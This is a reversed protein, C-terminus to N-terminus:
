AYDVESYVLEDDITEVTQCSSVIFNDLGSDATFGVFEYGLSKLEDLDILISLYIRGLYEDQTYFKVFDDKLKLAVSTDTIKVINFNNLTTDIITRGIFYSDDTYDGTENYNPSGAVCKFLSESAKTANGEHKNVNIVYYSKTLEIISDAEDLNVMEGFEGVQDGPEFYNFWNGFEFVIPQNTGYPLAELSNLLVYSLYQFDYYAYFDTYRERCTFNGYYTYATFLFNSSDKPSSDGKFQMIYVEDGLQLKFSSTATLPNSSYITTEYDDSSSYNYMQANVSNCFYVYNSYYDTKWWLAGTDREYEATAVDWDYTMSDYINDSEDDLYYQLGQSYFDTKNEDLFYNYKIEFLNDWLNVEMFYKKDGTTTEQLGIEFTSSIIKSDGYMCIYLYWVNVVLGALIILILSVIGIKKGVSM